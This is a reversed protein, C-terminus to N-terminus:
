RSIETLRGQIITWKQWANVATMPFDHGFTFNKYVPGNVAPAFRKLLHYLEATPPLGTFSGFCLGSLQQFVKNMALQTLCRDLKYLPENIDELILLRGTLDPMFETGCLTTLVTLNAAFPRATVASAAAADNLSELPLPFPPIDTVIAENSLANQLSGTSYLDDTIVPLKVLSPGAIPIGANKALMGAHLATIDSYGLIPINRRRLTEWDLDELLHVSGFGGRACIILDVEPDAIAANLSKLRSDLPSSLYSAEGARAFIEPAAIVKLQMSQLLDLATEVESIKPPGAPATVAITKIHSPFLM